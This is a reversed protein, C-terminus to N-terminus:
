YHYENEELYIIENDPIKYDIIMLLYWNGSMMSAGLWVDIKLVYKDTCKTAFINSFSIVPFSSLYGRAILVSQTEFDVEPSTITDSCSFLDDLAEQTNILMVERFPINEFYCKLHPSPFSYTYITDIVNIPITDYAEGTFIEINFNTDEVAHVKHYYTNSLLTDVITIFTQIRLEDGVLFPFDPDYLKRNKEIKLEEIGSYHIVPTSFSNDGHCLLKSSVSVQSTNINLLYYGKPCSELTFYHKGVDLHQKYQTIKKGLLDYLTLTTNGAQMLSFSLQTTGSFPNPYTLLDMSKGSSFDIIGVDKILELVTDPYYLTTSYEGQTMNTVVVSDLAYWDCNLWSSFTLRINQAQINTFIFVLCAFLLYKIRKNM